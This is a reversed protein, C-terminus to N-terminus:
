QRGGTAPDRPAPFVSVDPAVDDIESTRTLMDSAVEYGPAAHAEVLASMKSHLTGHPEDAPPVYVVRGEDIEYRTEPAVLRADVPPPQRPESPPHHWTM